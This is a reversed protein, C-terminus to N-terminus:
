ERRVKNIKIEWAKQEAESPNAKNEMGPFFYFGPERISEKMNAVIKDENPIQRIGMEGIPTAMHSIAGWVFVVIGGVLGGLLVKGIM